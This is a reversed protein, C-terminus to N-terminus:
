ESEDWDWNVVSKGENTQELPGLPEAAQYVRCRTINPRGPVNCTNDQWRKCDPCLPKRRRDIVGKVIWVGSALLVIGAFSTWFVGSM